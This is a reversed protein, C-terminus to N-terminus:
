ALEDAPKRAIIEVPAVLEDAVNRIMNRVKTQATPGMLLHLGLPPPGQSSSSDAALRDFFDVAFDRRGRGSILAVVVSLDPTEGSM